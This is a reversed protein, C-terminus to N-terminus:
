NITFNLIYNICWHIHFDHTSHFVIATLIQWTWYYIRNNQKMKTKPTRKILYYFSYSLHPAFHLSMVDHLTPESCLTYKYNIKEQM